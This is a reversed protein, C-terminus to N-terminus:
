QEDGYQLSTVPGANVSELLCYGTTRSLSKIHLKSHQLDMAPAPNLPYKPPIETVNWLSSYAVLCGVPQLHCRYDQLGHINAVRIVRTGQMQCCDRLPCASPGRQLGQQWASTQVHDGKAQEMWGCYLMCPNSNHAHLHMRINKKPETQIQHKIHVWLM